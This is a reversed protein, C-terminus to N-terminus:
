TDDEEWLAPVNPPEWGVQSLHATICRYAVGFGDPYFAVDETAYDTMPQWVRPGDSRDVRRWLAPVLGPRWDAQTTHSAVCRWIFSDWAYVDGVEVPVGSRWERETLAPAIRLLEDDSINGDAIPARLLLGLADAAAQEKTLQEFLSLPMSQTRLEETVADGVEIVIEDPLVLIDAPNAYQCGFGDGDYDYTDDHQQTHLTQTHQIDWAVGEVIRIVQM